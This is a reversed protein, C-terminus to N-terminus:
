SRKELQKIIIPIATSAGAKVASALLKRSRSEQDQEELQKRLEERLEAKIEEITGAPMGNSAPEGKGQAAPAAPQRTGKVAARERKRRRRRRAALTVAAMGGLVVVGAGIAATTLAVNRARRLKPVVIQQLGTIRDGM